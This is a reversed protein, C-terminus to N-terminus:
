ARGPLSVSGWATRCRGPSDRREKMWRNEWTQLVMGRIELAETTTANRWPTRSSFISSFSAVWSTWSTEASNLRASLHALAALPQAHCEGAAGPLLSALLGLAPVEACPTPPLPLFFFFFAPPLWDSAPTALSAVLTGALRGVTVLATRLARYMVGRPMGHRLAPLDLLERLLEAFLHLLLRAL